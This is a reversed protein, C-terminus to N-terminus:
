IQRKREADRALAEQFLAPPADFSTAHLQALASPLDILGDAAAKEL